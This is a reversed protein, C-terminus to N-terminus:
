ATTWCFPICISIAQKVVVILYNQLSSSMCLSNCLILINFSPFEMHIISCIYSHSAGIETVTSWVHFLLTKQSTLPFMTAANWHIAERIQLSGPYFCLLLTLLSTWWQWWFEWWLNFSLFFRSLQDGYKGGLRTTQVKTRSPYVGCGM